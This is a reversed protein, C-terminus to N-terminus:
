HFDSTSPDHVEQMLEAKADFGRYVPPWTSCAMIVGTGLIEGQALM